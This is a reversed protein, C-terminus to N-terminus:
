GTRRPSISEAALAYDLHGGFIEFARSPSQSRVSDGYPGLEGTVTLEGGDRALGELLSRHPGLVFGCCELVSQGRRRNDSGPQLQFRLLVHGTRLRQERVPGRVRGRVSVRGLDVYKGDIAVPQEQIWHKGCLLARLTSESLAADSAIDRLPMGALVLGLAYRAILPQVRANPHRAGRAQRDKAKMDQANGRRDSLFLHHPNVCPPNDCRHCVELTARPLPVFEYEWIYRHALFERGEAWYRGYGDRTRARQWLWCEKRLGRAHVDDTLKVRDFSDILQGVFYHHDPNVCRPTRCTRFLGLWTGPEHGHRLCWALRDPTESWGGDLAVSFAEPRWVQCGDAQREVQAWFWNWFDRSVLQHLWPRATLYSPDKGMYQYLMPWSEQRYWTSRPSAKRAM